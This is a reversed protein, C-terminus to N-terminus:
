KLPHDVTTGQGVVALWGLRTDRIGSRRRPPSYWFPTSSPRDRQRYQQTRYGPTPPLSFHKYSSRPVGERTLLRLTVVTSVVSWGRAAVRRLAGIFRQSVGLVQSQVHASIYAVTTTDHKSM